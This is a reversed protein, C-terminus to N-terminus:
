LLFLALPCPPRFFPQGFMPERRAFMGPAADPCAEVGLAAVAACHHLKTPSRLIEVIAVGGGVASTRLNQEFSFPLVDLMHRFAGAFYHLVKTRSDHPAQRESITASRLHLTAAQRLGVPRM